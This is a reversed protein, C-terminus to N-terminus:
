SEPIPATEPILSEHRLDHWLAPPISVEFQALNDAVQQPSEVGLVICTVAPHARVFQAAAAKLPVGHRECVAALRRVREVVAPPADAYNYKAHLGALVGSNYIGASFVSIGRAACADLVDLGGQELLTYRGALMVADFDADMLLRRAASLTGTGFGVAQTVGQAKLAHLTPVAEALITPYHDADDLPDHLYLIEVRDTRLRELSGELSWLIQDRTYGRQAEGNESWLGVKTSLVYSARDRNALATGVYREAVLAGYWPATDVLTVGQDLAYHLTAAAQAEPVERYLGSFSGTGVGVAPVTLGTHGVRRPRTQTIPQPSM